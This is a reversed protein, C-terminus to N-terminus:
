VFEVVIFSNDSDGKIARENEKKIINLVEKYTLNEGFGKINIM